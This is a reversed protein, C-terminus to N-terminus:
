GEEVGCEPMVVVCIPLPKWMALSAPTVETM